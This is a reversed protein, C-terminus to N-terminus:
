PGEISLKSSMYDSDFLAAGDALTPSKFAENKGWYSGQSIGTTTRTWLADTTVAVATWANSGGFANAFRGAEDSAPISSGAGWLVQGNAHQSLSLTLFAMFALRILKLTTKCTFYERM